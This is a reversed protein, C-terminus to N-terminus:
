TGNLLQLKVAPLSVQGARYCLELCFGFTLWLAAIQPLTHRSPLQPLHPGVAPLGVQSCCTLTSQPPHAPHGLDQLHQKNPRTIQCPTTAAPHPLVSTCLPWQQMHSLKRDLYKLAEHAVVHTGLTIEPPYARQRGETIQLLM